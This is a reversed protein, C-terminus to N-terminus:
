IILNKKSFALIPVVLADQINIDINVMSVSNFLCKVGGIPHHANREVLKSLEERASTFQPYTIFTVECGLTRLSM